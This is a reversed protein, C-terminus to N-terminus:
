PCASSTPHGSTGTQGHCDRNQTAYGSDRCFGTPVSFHGPKCWGSHFQGPQCRNCLRHPRIILTPYWSGTGIHCRNWYVRYTGPGFHLASKPAENPHGRWNFVTALCIGHPVHLVAGAGLTFKTRHRERENTNEYCCVTFLLCCKVSCACVSSAMLRKVSFIGFPLRDFTHSYKAGFYEFMAVHLLHLLVIAHFSHLSPLSDVATCCGFVSFYVSIVAISLWRYDGLPATCMKEYETHELLLILYLCSLFSLYLCIMFHHFKMFYICVLYYMKSESPLYIRM